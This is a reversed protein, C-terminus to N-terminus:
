NTKIYIITPLNTGTATTKITNTGKKLYGDTLLTNLNSLLTTDTIETDTPTALIYYLIFNHTSLYTKWNNVSMEIGYRVRFDKYTSGTTLIICGQDTNTSSLYAPTAMNCYLQQSGGGADAIERYRYFFSATGSNQIEWSEDESGDFIIKNTNKKVYWKDGSKYIYDQYTDIKCLEISGLTIPYTQEDTGNTITLTQTGTVTQVDVPNDPSPEGNQVTDGKSTVVALKKNSTPSLTFETGEGEVPETPAEGGQTLKNFFWYDFYTTHVKNALTTYKFFNFRKM